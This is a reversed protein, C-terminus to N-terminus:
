SGLLGKDLKLLRFIALPQDRLGTMTITGGYSRVGKYLSVLLGVGSSDVTRLQSLDVELRQPKRDLLAQAENRLGPASVTDLDGEVALRYTGDPTTSVQFKAAM